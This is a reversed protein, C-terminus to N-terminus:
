RMLFEWLSAILFLPVVLLYIKFVDAIAQKSIGPWKGKSRIFSLGVNIGAGGALAYPILQLILTVLYYAAEGPNALRSAHSNDLSVIGGVWGRYAVIPYPVVVAIGGVTDGISGILNGAFDLFAAQLRNNDHFAVLISSSEAKSVIHDRKSIAFANGSHVMIIGAGVSLIYTLAL